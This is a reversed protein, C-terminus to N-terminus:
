ANSFVNKRKLATGCYACVNSTGLVTRGCGTCELKEPHTAVKGDQKGDLLDIKEVYKRLDAEMLGSHDRLLSWFALTVLKLQEHRQELDQLRAELAASKNDQAKEKELQGLRSSQLTHIQGQQFLDWFLDLM